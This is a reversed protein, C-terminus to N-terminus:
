GELGQLTPVLLLDNYALM